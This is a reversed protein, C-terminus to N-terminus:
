SGAGRELDDMREKQHAARLEVVELREVFADMRGHFEGRTIFNNRAYDKFEDLSVATDAVAAAVRRLSRDMSGIKGDMSGIKGEMSGIRGDMSGIKGEMSGIKGEMSGIRGEMSGIKGDMSGVRGLLEARMEQVCGALARVDDRIMQFEPTMGEM